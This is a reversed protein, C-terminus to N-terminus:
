LQGMTSWEAYCSAMDDESLSSEDINTDLEDAKGIGEVDAGPVSYM